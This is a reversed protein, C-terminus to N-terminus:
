KLIKIREEIDVSLPSKKSLYRGIINVEIEEDSNLNRKSELAKMEDRKFLYIPLAIRYYEDSNLPKYIPSECERCLVQVSVVRSNVPQSINFTVQM